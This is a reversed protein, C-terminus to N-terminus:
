DWVGGQGAREDGGARFLLSRIGFAARDQGRMAAQELCCRDLGLRRGEKCEDGGILRIWNETMMRGKESIGKPLRFSDDASHLTVPLSVALSLSYNIESVATCKKRQDTRTKAHLQPQKRM